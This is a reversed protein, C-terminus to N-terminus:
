VFLFSLVEFFLYTDTIGEESKRCNERKIIYKKIPSNHGLVEILRERLLALASGEDRLNMM